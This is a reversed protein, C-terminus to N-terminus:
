GEVQIQQFIHNIEPLQMDIDRTKIGRQGRTILCVHCHSM